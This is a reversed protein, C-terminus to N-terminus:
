RTRSIQEEPLKTGKGTRCDAVASHLDSWWAGQDAQLLNSDRERLASPSM